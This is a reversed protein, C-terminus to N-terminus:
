PKKTGKSFCRWKRETNKAGGERNQEREDWGQGSGSQGGELRFTRDREDKPGGWSLVVGGTM